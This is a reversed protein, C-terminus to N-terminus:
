SEKTKVMFGIGTDEGANCNVGIFDTRGATVRVLYAQATDPRFTRDMRRRGGQDPVLRTTGCLAPIHVMHCTVPAKRYNVGDRLDVHTHGSLWITDPYRCLLRMFRTNNPFREGTHLSGEYAPRDADDGVGCGYVSAHQVLFVRRHERHAQSLLGEVWDLQAPTFEDAFPVMMGGEDAMVIFRDGFLPHDFSYYLGEGAGAGRHEATARLFAATLEDMPVGRTAQPRAEHNGFAAYIPRDYGSERIIRRYAEWEPAVDEAATIQDGASLLFDTGRERFFRLADAFNAEAMRFYACEGGGERDIHVDSILGFAYSLEQM